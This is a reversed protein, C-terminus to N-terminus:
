PAARAASPALAPRLPWNGLVITGSSLAEALKGLDSLHRRVIQEVAATPVPAAEARMRVRLDAVQPDDIPHGIRSVLCCECGAVQPLERVVDDAILGAAINYLKGVHNVPNKGAVSEMTMPRGPTILGNVRNGRGAEGDDGAEASTGTVTLYLSGPTDGDAANVAVLAELGTVRGAAARVHDALWAKNRRYRDIDPVHRGIQPCAVTLQLRRGQRVAMIKTDEGFAPDDRRLAPAPLAEDVALVAREVESLPAFGVGCSTDNALPVAGSHQRAFLETLDVSGPRILCHLRVQREVDLAHLNRRLWGRCTEVALEAVPVGVGRHRQAARGALYIDIPRTVKGGGFAAHAQGGRLLVKDVNHHLVAGFRGRYFRCLALSIEEALADCITDPHGRGKREVVEVGGDGAGAPLRGIALDM